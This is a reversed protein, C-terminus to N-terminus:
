ILLPFPIHPSCFFINYTIEIQSNEENYEDPGHCQSADRRGPDRLIKKYKKKKALKNKCVGAGARRRGKSKKNNNARNQVRCVRSSPMHICIFSFSCSVFCPLQGPLIAPLCSSLFSPLWAAGRGFKRPNHNERPPYDQWSRGPEAEFSGQIEPVFGPPSFPM